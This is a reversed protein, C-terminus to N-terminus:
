FVTAVAPMPNIAPPLIRLAKVGVGVGISATPSCAPAREPICPMNDSFPM